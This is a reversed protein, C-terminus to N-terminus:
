YVLSSANRRDDDHLPPLAAVRGVARSKPGLNEFLWRGYEEYECSTTFWAMVAGVQSTFLPSEEEVTATAKSRNPPRKSFLIAAWLNRQAFRSNYEATPIIQLM